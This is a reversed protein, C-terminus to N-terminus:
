RLVGEDGACQGVSNLCASPRKPVAHQDPMRCPAAAICLLRQLYRAEAALQLASSGPDAITSQYLSPSKLQLSLGCRLGAAVAMRRTLPADPRVLVKRRDHLTECDGNSTFSYVLHTVIMGM